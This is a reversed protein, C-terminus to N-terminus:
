PPTINALLTLLAQPRRGWAFVKGRAAARWHSRRGLMVLLLEAPDAHVRVDPRVGAPPMEVRLGNGLALAFREHGRLRIEVRVRVNPDYASRLWSQPSAAMIPVAAGAIALAAHAREIPWPQGTATAIDYGHVLLEELLHCVVAHAPLQTGGIWTIPAEVPQACLALFAAARDQIRDALMDVDRETDDVLMANTMEGVASPSLTVDPLARGALADNDKEIVHSVHAAVDAASWAGIAKTTCGRSRRVLQAFRPAVEEIATAGQTFTDAAM